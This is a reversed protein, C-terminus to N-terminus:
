WSDGGGRPPWVGLIRRVMAVQGTHYSNHAVMEWLVAEVSRARKKEAERMSEVERQLEEPSAGAMKEYEALFWAFDRRLRDWEAADIVTDLAPFSEAAHDPYQPREGRIRRLEYNMWYNMHFVLAAISHPSGDVKRSALEANVDEVCAIPDVHAGQGHLLEIQARRSTLMKGKMIRM